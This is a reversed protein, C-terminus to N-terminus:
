ITTNLQKQNFYTTGEVDFRTLNTMETRISHVFDGSLDRCYEINLIRLNTASLIPFLDEDTVANVPISLSTITPNSCVSQFLDSHLVSCNRLCLTHLKLMKTICKSLTFTLQNDTCKISILTLSRLHILKGLQAIGTSTPIIEHDVKYWSTCDL